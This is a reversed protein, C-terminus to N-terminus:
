WKGRWSVLSQKRRQEEFEKKAQQLDTKLKQIDKLCSLEEDRMQKKMTLVQQQLSNYVSLVNPDIMYHNKPLGFMRTHIESLEFDLQGLIRKKAKERDMIADLISELNHSIIKKKSALIQALPDKAPINSSFNSQYLNIDTKPLPNNELFKCAADLKQDNIEVKLGNTKPNIFYTDTM